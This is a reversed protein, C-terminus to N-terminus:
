KSQQLWIWLNHALELATSVPMRVAHYPSTAAFAAQSAEATNTAASCKSTWTATLAALHITSHLQWSIVDLGQQLTKGALMGIWTASCFTQKSSQRGHCRFHHLASHALQLQFHDPLCCQSRVTLHQLVCMFKLITRALKLLLCHAFVESSQVIPYICMLHCRQRRALMHHMSVVSRFM